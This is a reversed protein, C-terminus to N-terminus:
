GFYHNLLFNKYSRYIVIIIGIQELTAGAEPSVIKFSAEMIRLVTTPAFENNLGYKNSMKLAVVNPWFYFLAIKSLVVM